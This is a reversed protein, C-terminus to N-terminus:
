LKRYFSFGFRDSPEMNPPYKGFNFEADGFMLRKQKEWGNEAMLKDHEDPNCAPSNAVFNLIVFSDKASLNSLETLLKINEEKELYMVLGELIWCTPESPNFGSGKSPVDATSEKKFDMSIIARKCHPEPLGGAEKLGDLVGNKYDNVEKADCEVYLACEKLCDDWFARTDLGSGM